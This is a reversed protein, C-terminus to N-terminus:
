LINRDKTIVKFYHNSWVAPAVDLLSPAGSPTSLNDLPRVGSARRKSTKATGVFTHLAVEILTTAKRWATGDALLDKPDVTSRQFEQCAAPNAKPRLSRKPPPRPLRSGAAKPGRKSRAKTKAKSKSKAESKANTKSKAKAKSKTKGGRQQHVTRPVRPLDFGDVCFNLNLRCAVRRLRAQPIGGGGCGGGARPAYLGGPSPPHNVTFYLVFDAGAESEAGAEAVAVAVAAGNRVQLGLEDEWPRWTLVAVRFKEQLHGGDRGGGGKAIGKGALTPQVALDVSRGGSGIWLRGARVLQAVRAASVISSRFVGPGNSDSPSSSANNNNNNGLPDWVLEATATLTITWQADLTAWRRRPFHVTTTPPATATATATTTMTTKKETLLTLSLFFRKPSFPCFCFATEKTHQFCTETGERETREWFPLRLRIPFHGGDLLVCSVFYRM